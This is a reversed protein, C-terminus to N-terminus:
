NVADRREQMQKLIYESLGAADTEALAEWTMEITLAKDDMVVAFKFSPGAARAKEVAQAMSPDAGAHGRVAKIITSAMLDAEARLKAPRSHKTSM